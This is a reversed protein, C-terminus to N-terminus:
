PAVMGVGGEIAHPAPLRPQEVAMRVRVEGVALEVGAVRLALPAGAVDLDTARAVDVGLQVGDGWLRETWAFAETLAPGRVVEFVGDRVDLRVSDPELRPTPTGGVRAYVCDDRLRWLHVKLPRRSGQWGLRAEFPGDPDPDGDASYRSPLLGEAMAHNAIEAATDGALRIEVASPQVLRLDPALGREVPLTTVLDVHLAPHRGATSRLTARELPIDPLTLQVLLADDLPSLLYDRVLPWGEDVVWTLAASAAQQTAAEPLLRAVGTPLAERLWAGLRRKGEAEFRPRVADLRRPELVVDIVRRRPDIIPRIQAEIILDLLPLDGDRVAATVAVGVHGDDAPVLRVDTLALEVGLGVGLQELGPVTLRDSTRLELREYILRNALRLPIIVEAHPADIWGDRAFFDDKSTRIEDCTTGCAALPLAALVAVLVWPLTSRLNM